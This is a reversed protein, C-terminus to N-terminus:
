NEDFLYNLFQLANEKNSAISGIGVVAEVQYFNEKQFKFSERLSIGSPYQEKTEEDTQYVFYKQYKEIEDKSLIEELNVFCHNSSLYIFTNIDSIFLDIEGVLFKGSLVQYSTGSLQSGDDSNIKLMAEVELEEYETDCYNEEFVDFLKSNQVNVADANVLTIQMYTDKHIGTSYVLAWLILTISLLGGLIWFKYYTWLYNVKQKWTMRWQKM